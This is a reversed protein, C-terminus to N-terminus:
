VLGVYITSSVSYFPFWGHSHPDCAFVWSSLGSFINVFVLFHPLITRSFPVFYWYQAKLFQKTWWLCLKSVFHLNKEFIAKKTCSYPQCRLTADLFRASEWLITKNCPTCHKPGKTTPIKKIRTFIFFLTKVSFYLWGHVL